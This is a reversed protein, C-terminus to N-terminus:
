RVGGFDNKSRAAATLPLVVRERLALALWQHISEGSVGHALLWKASLKMLWEAIHQDALGLARGGRMFQDFHTLLALKQESTM